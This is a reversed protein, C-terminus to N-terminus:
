PNVALATFEKTRITFVCCRVCRAGRGSPLRQMNACRQQQPMEILVACCDGSIFHGPTLPLVIRAVTETSM